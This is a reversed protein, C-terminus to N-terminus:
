LFAGVDKKKQEETERYSKEYEKALQELNLTREKTVVQAKRVNLFLPANVAEGVVIAEGTRLAPLAKIISADIGEASKQVHDLDNPNTIRMIIHTNCQSLATTSLNVPRQSILCLCAGFKRGERAITEIVARSICESKEVQSAFNHAEEVVALFPPIKGRKRLNFLHRLLLSVLAQKAKLHEMGSLDIVILHGPHMIRLFSPKQCRKIFRFSHIERLVRMLANKTKKERQEEVVKELADKIEKWGYTNKGQELAQKLAEREARKLLDEQPASLQGGALEKAYSLARKLPYTIEKIADLLITRDKFQSHVFGSYEGHIDFVIACIRGQEPTRKLLEELLVTTLYSKGSGSMALIALHKQLLKAMNLKAPLPHHQVYGLWLGSPDLGLFANLVEPEVEEVKSGPSPSTFLRFFQGERYEGVIKVQALQTTWEAIPFHQELEKQKVLELEQYYPNTTLIESIYGIIAGHQTKVQVYQGKKVEPNSVLFTFETTSPSNPTSIIQGLM